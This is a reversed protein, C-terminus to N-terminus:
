ASSRKANEDQIWLLYGIGTWFIEVLRYFVAASVTARGPIALAGTALLLMGGERSGVQYPIFFFLNDVLARGVDLLGCELAPVPQALSRFAVYFTAGEIFRAAIEFLGPAGFRYFDNM